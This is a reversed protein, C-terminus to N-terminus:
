ISQSMSKLLNVRDVGKRRENIPRIPIPVTIAIEECDVGERVIGGEADAANM